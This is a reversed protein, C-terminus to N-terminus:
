VSATATLAKDPLSKDQFSFSVISFFSDAEPKIEPRIRPSPAINTSNGYIKRRLPLPANYETARETHIERERITAIVREFVLPANM